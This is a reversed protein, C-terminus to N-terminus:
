WITRGGDIILLQGTMYQSAESALFVIGGHYDSKKALKNMPVRKKINNVLSKSQTNKVAGPVLCNVRVGKHAWYTAFYRNLGLLGSKVIPYGIPKFNKVDQIKENSSYVRQDPGSIALDSAINIISGKKHKAMISGFVKCCIFSGVLGVNIEQFLDKTDYEEVSNSNSDLHDMKPDIAANNVLINIKINKKLLHESLKKVEIENTIDVLHLYIKATRNAKLVYEKAASLKKKNIDILHVRCQFMSLAIAHERGLLGAGGTIIANNDKLNFLNNIM